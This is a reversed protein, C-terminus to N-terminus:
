VNIHWLFCATFRRMALASTNQKIKSKISTRTIKEKRKTPRYTIDEISEKHQQMTEENKNTQATIKLFPELRLCTYEVRSMLKNRINKNM